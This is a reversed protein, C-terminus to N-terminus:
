VIFYLIGAGILFIVFSVVKLVKTTENIENSSFMKKAIIRADYIVTVSIAMIILGIIILITNLM